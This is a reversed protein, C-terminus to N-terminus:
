TTEDLLTRQADLAHKAGTLVDWWGLTMALFHDLQWTGCDVGDGQRRQQSRLNPQPLCFAAKASGQLLHLVGESFGIGAYAIVGPMPLAALDNLAYPIKEDVTGVSDQYKCEVAIATQKTQQVILLDVRRQKGIISTGAPVEEYIQIGRSGFNHLVYRAILRRYQTGTM